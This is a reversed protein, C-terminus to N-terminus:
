FDDISSLEQKYFSEDDVKIGTSKAQKILYDLKCRAINEEYIAIEILKPDTCTNFISIASEMDLKAKEISLLLNKKMRADIDNDTLFM